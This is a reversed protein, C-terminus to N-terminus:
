VSGLNSYIIAKIPKVEEVWQITLLVAVMEGTYVSLNNIIIKGVKIQFEPVIFAVGIKDTSKSADIYIQVKRSRRGRRLSLDEEHLNKIATALFSFTHM